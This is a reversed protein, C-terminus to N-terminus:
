SSKKLVSHSLSELEEDDRIYKGWAYLFAIHNFEALSEFATYDIESDEELEEGGVWYEWVQICYYSDWVLERVRDIETCEVLEDILMDYENELSKVKSLIKERIEDNMDSDDKDAYCTDEMRSDGSLVFNYFEIWGTLRDLFYIFMPVNLKNDVGMALMERITRINNM